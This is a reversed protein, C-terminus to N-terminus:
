REPGGSWEFPIHKSSVGALDYDFGFANVRQRTGKGWTAIQGPGVESGPPNHLQVRTGPPTTPGSLAEATAEVTSGVRVHWEALDSDIGIEIPATEIGRVEGFVEALTAPWGGVKGSFINRLADRQKEDSREDLYIGITQKAEGTWLNGDFAGLIVVNLGDLSVDGYQGDNVRFALVGDCHNNTPPQAFECPCPIDCSCVDFWDGNAHWAPAETM